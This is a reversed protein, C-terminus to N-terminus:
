LISNSLRSDAKIEKCKAEMFGPKGTLDKLTKRQVSAGKKEKKVNEAWDKYRYFCM